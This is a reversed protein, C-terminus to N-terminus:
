DAGAAMGSLSWATNNHTGTSSDLSPSSPGNCNEYLESIILSTPAVRAVLLAISWLVLIDEPCTSRLTTGDWSMAMVAKSVQPGGDMLELVIQQEKQMAGVLTFTFISQRYHPLPAGREM